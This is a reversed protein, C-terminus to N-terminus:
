MVPRDRSRPVILLLETAHENPERHLRSKPRNDSAYEQSGNDPFKSRCERKRRCPSLEEATSRAAKRHFIMGRFKPPVLPRIRLLLKRYQACSSSPGFPGRHNQSTRACPMAHRSRRQFSKEVSPLLFSFPLFRRNTPRNSMRRQFGFGSVQFRAVRFGFRVTSSRFSEPSKKGVRGSEKQRDSQWCHNTAPVASAM